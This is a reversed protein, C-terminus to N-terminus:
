RKGRLDIVEKISCGWDIRFVLRCRILRGQSCVITRNNFRTPCYLNIHEPVVFIAIASEVWRGYRNDIRGNAPCYGNIGIPQNGISMIARGTATITESVRNGIILPGNGIWSRNIDGHGAISILRRKGCIITRDNFWTPCCLNIHEAVVFITISSEVWRGYRNDIRRSAPCYRNIGIPQNGISM